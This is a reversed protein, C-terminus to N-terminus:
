LQRTLKDDHRIMRNIAVDLSFGDGSITKRWFSTKRGSQVKIELFGVEVFSETANFRSVISTKLESLLFLVLIIV